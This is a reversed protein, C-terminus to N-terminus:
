LVREGEVSDTEVWPSRRMVEGLISRPKVEDGDDNKQDGSSEKSSM